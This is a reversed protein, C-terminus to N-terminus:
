TGPTVKTSSSTANSSGSSNSPNSSNSPYQLIPPASGIYAHGALELAFGIAKKKDLKLDDIAFGYAKLFNPAALPGSKLVDYSIELAFKMDLGFERNERLTKYIDMFPQSVGKDYYQSLYAVKVSYDACFAVPLGLKKHDRCFRSLAIFDDRAMTPDGKYDKSLEFAIKMAKAFDYDFFEQLFSKSFIELFNKQVQPRQAAFDLAMELAKKESFGVTKIFVLIQSFREASGDCGASVQFAIKRAVQEPFSFGKADRLFRL